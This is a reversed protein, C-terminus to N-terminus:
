VRYKEAEEPHRDRIYKNLINNLQRIDIPKALFGDFGNQKFMKDNDVLANATLAVIVGPYGLKRIEKTTEIGDIGPMFHDMFIIDYIKGSNVLEIAEYGSSATQIQLNYPNLSGEAVYLNLEVDDVVLVRGYPMPTYIIQVDAMLRENTYTFNRLKSVIEAGIISCEFTKQRVEVIFTSGKGYVSETKISGGMLEIFSKTINLGLGTGQTARNAALNFRTYETFLNKLDEPKIGQGTDEVILNLIVGDGDQFHDVTLRIYGIDTYKVANSLLNNLIQKLRLEDGILRSPLNEDINLILELQKSGLHLLTMQVADNLLSPVHYVIPNLELKGTEIKSLDLIDNIIILLNSGSSHIKQFAMIYKDPLDEDHLQIQSIGLIANMPTRIEHSMAALFESKSKSATESQKSKKSYLIVSLGGCILTTIMSAALILNMLVISQRREIIVYDEIDVGAGGYINGDEDFVPAFASILNDWEPYYETTNTVNAEGRLIVLVEEQPQFFYWPGVSEEPDDDNDIIYQGLGDETYRFFYVWLVNNRDAVEQLFVKLEAYEETETDEALHYRDLVSAPVSEAANLVASILHHSISEDMETVINRVTISTIIVAILVVVSAAFFLYTVFYASAIVRLAKKIKSV